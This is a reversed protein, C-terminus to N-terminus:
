EIIGKEKLQEFTVRTRFRVLESNSKGYAGIRDENLYHVYHDEATASKWEPMPTGDADLGNPDGTRAFNTWYNCVIRALDYHKGKFPRWCKALTEFVFWLESSHFSGPRDWGPMSADFVYMWNDKKGARIRQELFLYNNMFRGRFSDDTHSLMAVEADDRCGCLAL